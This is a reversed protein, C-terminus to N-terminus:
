FDHKMDAKIGINIITVFEQLAILEKVTIPPLTRAKADM